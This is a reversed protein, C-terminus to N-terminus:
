LNYSFGTSVMATNFGSPILVYKSELFISYKKFKLLYGVIVAFGIKTDTSKEIEVISEYDQPALSESYIIHFDIATGLYFGRPKPNLYGFIKAGFTIHQLSLDKAKETFGSNWYGAFPTFFVYDLVEGFDTQIEIAFGENWDGQPFIIGGSLGLSKLEIDQASITKISFFIFLTLLFIYIYKM